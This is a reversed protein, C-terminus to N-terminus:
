CFLLVPFFFELPIANWQHAFRYPAMARRLKSHSGM